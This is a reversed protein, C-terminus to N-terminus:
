CIKGLCRAKRWRFLRVEVLIILPKNVLQRFRKPFDCFQMEGTTVVLFDCSTQSAHHAGDLALERDNVFFPLLNSLRARFIFALAVSYGPRPQDTLARVSRKQRDCM